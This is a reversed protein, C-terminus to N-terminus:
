PSVSQADTNTNCVSLFQFTAILHLNKKEVQSWHGSALFISFFGSPLEGATVYVDVYGM